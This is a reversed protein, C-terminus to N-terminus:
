EGAHCNHCMNLANIGYLADDETMFGGGLGGTATFSGIDESQWGGDNKHQDEGFDWCNVSHKFWIGHICRERSRM